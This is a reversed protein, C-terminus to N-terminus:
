EYEPALFCKVKEKIDELYAEADSRGWTLLNTPAPNYYKMFVQKTCSPVFAIAKRKDFEVKGDDRLFCHMGREKYIIFSRKVSFISNKYSKNTGEDLLALNWIHMRENDDNADEPTKLKDNNPFLEEVRSHLTEFDPIDGKEKQIMILRNRLEDVNKLKEIAYLAALLWARRQKPETLENTTASDIHEVNWVEKKFLHFPFKYFVNLEYKDKQVEQNEIVDQINHLLLIKKIIIKDKDFQLQNLESVKKHGLTKQIEDVLYEKFKVKDVGDWKCYLNRILDFKDGKTEEKEWVLFGVYHYYYKDNFWEIFTNYLSVVKGWIGKLRESVSMGKLYHETAAAFYRFVSYRDNGIFEDYHGCMSSKLGFLDKNFIIEFIFDIRTPRSYTPSNLFLWFEENQLAYEIEDWKAAIEMQLSFFSAGTEDPYGSRNLLIAKILEANTLSIKGINLRTFVEIPKENVSEYWIFKVRNNIVDLLDSRLSKDQKEQQELWDSAAQYARRMYYYDINEDADKETKKQLEKLFTESGTRTSYSISYPENESSSLLKRLIYITTLRQQGDIVEWSISTSLVESVREVIVSEDSDLAKNVSDKFVGLDPTVKKVALPQLCYYGSSGGQMFVTLDKLLDTVQQSEWRYGRQYGPIIFKKGELDAVSMLGIKNDSVM